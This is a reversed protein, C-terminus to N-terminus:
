DTSESRETLKVQIDGRVVGMDPIGGVMRENLEDLKGNTIMGCFYRYLEQYSHTEKM